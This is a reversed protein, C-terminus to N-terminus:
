ECINIVFERQCSSACRHKPQPNHLHTVLHRSRRTSLPRRPRVLLWLSARYVEAPQPHFIRDPAQHQVSNREIHNSYRIPQCVRHRPTHHGDSDSPHQGFDLTAHSTSLTEEPLDRRTQTDGKNRLRLSRLHHIGTHLVRYGSDKGHNFITHLFYRSSTFKGLHFRLVHFTHKNM